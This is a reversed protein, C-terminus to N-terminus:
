PLLLSSDGYSLFRYDNNLAFDYITKWCDGGTLAAILLLLTSGPQHFNTIIGRCIRFQYGPFIFIETEGRLEESGQNDMYELISSLSAEASPLINGLDSYPYLKPIFFGGPAQEKILMVGFWYLSELSRMSTTGVPIVCSLNRKLAQIFSRSFVMQESHMTHEVANQTKVPQFTGAGVHLTIFGTDIGKDRIKSFVEDTFHLGATPAAVAGDHVSYVTQYTDLDKAETKRNLYPPLPIEGFARILESFIVDGTWSFTVLNQDADSLSAEVTIEKDEAKIMSTLREEKWKKKNGIMCTWQCSGTCEMATAIVPTPSVPQLLFLEIVAGTSKRFHLRAPIVRTDNFVLFSNEPLFTDIQSFVATELTHGKAVLLKSRDRPEVPFRAIKEDPLPYRYGAIDIPKIM